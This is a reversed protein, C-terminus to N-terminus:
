RETMSNKFTTNRGAYIQTKKRLIAYYFVAIHFNKM